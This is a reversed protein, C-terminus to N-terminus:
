SLSSTRVTTYRTGQKSIHTRMLHVNKVKFEGEYDLEAAHNDLGRFAGAGDDSTTRGLTLHPHFARTERDFGHQALAWEIDQKLCRLAPSAGVGLWFVNPRRITPFAGFGKLDVSFSSTESAVRDLTEEVKQVRAPHVDGLFKLTVHYHEPEVWRVPLEADRLRTAAKFVRTKERKPMDLAVFLRM